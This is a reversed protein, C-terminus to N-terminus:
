VEEPQIIAAIRAAIEEALEPAAARSRYALLVPLADELLQHVDDRALLEANRVSKIVHENDQLWALTQRVGEMRQLHYELQAQRRPERGAIRKYVVRRQGLEYDVEEIQARLSFKREQTRPREPAHAQKDFRSM